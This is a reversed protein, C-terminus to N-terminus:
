PNSAPTPTSTTKAGPAPRNGTVDNGASEKCKNVDAQSVGMRESIDAPTKGRDLDKKIIGCNVAAIAPAAFSATLALSCLAAAVKKNMVNDGKTHSREEPARGRYLGSFM